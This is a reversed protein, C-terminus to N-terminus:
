VNIKLQFPTEKSSDDLYEVYAQIEVNLKSGLSDVFSAIKKREDARIASEVGQLFHRKAEITTTDQTSWLLLYTGENYM